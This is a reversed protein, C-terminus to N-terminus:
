NLLPLQDYGRAVLLVGSHRLVVTCRAHPGSGSVRGKSAAHRQLHRTCEWGMCGPGMCEHGSNWNSLGGAIVHLARLTDSSALVTACCCMFRWVCIRFSTWSARRRAYRASCCPAESRCCFTSRRDSFSLRLRFTSTSSFRCVHSVGCWAAQKWFKGKTRCTARYQTAGLAGRGPLARGPSSAAPSRAAPGHCEPRARAATCPASSHAGHVSGHLALVPARPGPLRTYNATYKIDAQSGLQPQQYKRGEAAAACSARERHQVREPHPITRTHIIVAHERRGYRPRRRHDARVARLWGAVARSNCWGSLRVSTQQGRRRPRM